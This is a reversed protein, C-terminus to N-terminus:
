YAAPGLTIPVAHDVETEVKFAAHMKKVFYLKRRVHCLVLAPGCRETGDLDDAVPDILEADSFRDYLELSIPSDEDLHGTDLIRSSRFVKDALRSLELEMQNLSAITRAFHEVADVSRERAFEPLSQRV